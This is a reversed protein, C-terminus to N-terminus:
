HRDGIWGHSPPRHEDLASMGPASRGGFTTQVKAVHEANLVPEFVRNTFRLGVINIIMPFRLLPDVRRRSSRAMATLLENLAATSRRRARVAERHSVPATPVAIDPMSSSPLSVTELLAQLDDADAPHPAEHPQGERQLEGTVVAVVLGELPELM